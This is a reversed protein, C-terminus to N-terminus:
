PHVVVSNEVKLLLSIGSNNFNSITYDHYDGNVGADTWGAGIKAVDGENGDIFLTRTGGASTFNLVDSAEINLRTGKAADGNADDTILLVETNHIATNGHLDVEVVTTAGDVVGPNGNFLALAGQDIRLVDTGAGGDLLVDNPDYVLIDNGGNGSVADAGPGGNLIDADGSGNLTEAGSAGYLYNVGNGGADTLNNVGADGDTSLTMPQVPPPSDPNIVSTIATRDSGGVTDDLILGQTGGGGGTAQGFIPVGEISFDTLLM